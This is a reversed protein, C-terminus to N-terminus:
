AADGTYFRTVNEVASEVETQGAGAAAHATGWAEASLTIFQRGAPTTPWVEKDETSLTGGTLHLRLGLLGLDWGVGVAGPGFQGWFGPDVVASHELELVTANEGAASLRVEVESSGPQADGFIWSVTLLRPPECRLIEGGANGELQYKGGPRFDGTVPALWRSIREPDTIADWVEEVASPYTRRILVTKGEGAPVRGDRVERHVSGVEDPVDIM